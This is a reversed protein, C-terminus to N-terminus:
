IRKQYMNKFIKNGNDFLMQEINSNEKKFKSHNSILTKTINELSNKISTDLKYIWDTFDRVKVKKLFKNQDKYQIKNQKKLNWNDIIKKDVKNYVEGDDLKVDTIPDDKDDIPEYPTFSSNKNTYLKYWVSRAGPTLNDSSIGDRYPYLLGEDNTLTAIIPYAINIGSFNTNSAMGIIMSAGHPNSKDINFTSVFLAGDANLESNKLILNKDYLFAVQKDPGYYLCLNDRNNLDNVNNYNNKQDKKNGLSNGVKKLIVVGKKKKDIYNKEKKDLDIIGVKTIMIPNIKQIDSRIKLDKESHVTFNVIRYDPLLSIEEIDNLTINNIYSYHDNLKEIKYNENFFTLYKILKM